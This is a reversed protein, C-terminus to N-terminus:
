HIIPSGWTAKAEFWPMVHVFVRKSTNNPVAQPSYTVAQSVEGLTLEPEREADSTGDCGAGLSAAVLAALVGCTSAKVTKGKSSVVSTLATAALAFTGGIVLLIGITMPVGWGYTHNESRKEIAM